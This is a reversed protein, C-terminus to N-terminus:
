DVHLKIEMDMLEYYGFSKIVCTVYQLGVSFKRWDFAQKNRVEKPLNRKREEVAGTRTTAIKSTIFVSGIERKTIIAIFILILLDVYVCFGMWGRMSWLSMFVLERLMRRFGFDFLFFSFVVRAPKLILTWAMFNLPFLSKEGRRACSTRQKMKM